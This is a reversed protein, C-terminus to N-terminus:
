RKGSDYIEGAAKPGVQKRSFFVIAIITVLYPFLAFFQSPLIMLFPISTSYQGLVQSFGFFLSSFLVGWPNWKGFILTALAIFGLGHVTGIYFYTSTSLILTAGALGAFAGSTLVGIWRMKAVNVGMSASAQPYEGCSRLRLGFPTKFVVFWTLVVLFIMIYTTPYSSFLMKGIIPIDKLIPINVKTFAFTFADTSKMKFIIECLYITLGTALVNLATGSITQDARFHIAAVAHIASFITGVIAAALLSLWVASAGMGAKQLLTLTTAAMFAGVLMIGELAINVVGSRESFLGGLAAIALPTALILTSTFMSVITNM